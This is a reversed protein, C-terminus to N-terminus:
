KLQGGDVTFISGTIFKSLPSALYLVFNAVDEPSGFMKLPVNKRIMQNVKEPDDNLKKEWTSDKFYINGPAVANIRIGREAFPRSIGCVYSNLAAKAASYTVPAGEITQLGCISSICIISSEHPILYDSLLEVSNTTAWLNSAFVKQWEKYHEKGPKVSRGNGINCVLIDLYKIEKLLNPIKRKTEEFNSFDSLFSYSGKITNKAKNLEKKDRGNLIVNSGESNFKKAIELGIGRSSGTILVNKGSLSFNM